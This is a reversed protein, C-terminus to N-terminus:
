IMARFLRLFEPCRDALLGMRKNLKGFNMVCRDDTRRLPNCLRAAFRSSAFGTDGKGTFPPLDLQAQTGAKAPVVVTTMTTSRQHIVGRRGFVAGRDFQDGGAM